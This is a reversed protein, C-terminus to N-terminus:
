VRRAVSQTFLGEPRLLLVLFLVVFSVASKAGGSVYAAAFNEIIGLLLGGLITGILSDFGGIVAAVFAPVITLVMLAPSVGLSPAAFAGALGALAGGFFWAAAYTKDVSYGCLQAGRVSSAMARM